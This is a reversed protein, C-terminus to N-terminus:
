YNSETGWRNEHIPITNLEQNNNTEPKPWLKRTIIDHRTIHTWELLTCIWSYKTQAKTTGTVVQMNFGMQFPPSDITHYKRIIHNTIKKWENGQAVM